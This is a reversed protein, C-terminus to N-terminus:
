IPAEESNEVLKSIPSETKERCAYEEVNHYYDFVPKKRGLREVYLSEKPVFGACVKKSGSVLRELFGRVLHNRLIILADGVPNSGTNGGHFPSLM